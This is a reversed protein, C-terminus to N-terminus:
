VGPVERVLGDHLTVFRRRDEGAFSAPNARLGHRLPNRRAIAKGAATKPGTSKLSNERNRRVIANNDGM